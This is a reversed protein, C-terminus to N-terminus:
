RSSRRRRLVFAVLASALVALTMAYGRARPSVGCLWGAGAVEFSQSADPPPGEVARDDAPPPVCAATRWDCTYDRQRCPNPSCLDVCKAESPGGNVSVRACVRMPPCVVAECDDVCAGDRCYTGAACAVGVCAAEVCQSVAPSPACTEGAACTAGPCTCSPRCRGQECTTGSPCSLAACPDVCGFGRCIQGHPCRVSANCSPVCTKSEDCIQGAPCGFVSCDKPTCVCATSGPVTTMTAGPPCGFDALPACDAVCVSALCSKKKPCPDPAVGSCDHDTTSDCTEPAGPYTAPDADNCDCPSGSAACGCAAFGDGDGDGDSCLVGADCFPQASSVGPLWCAGLAVALSLTGRSTACRRFRM